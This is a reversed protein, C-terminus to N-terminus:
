EVWTQTYTAMISNLKESDSKEKFDDKTELDRRIQSNERDIEVRIKKITQAMKLIFELDKHKKSVDFDEKWKDLGGGFALRIPLKKAQEYASIVVGEATKIDKLDYHQVIDYRSKKPDACYELLGDVNLGIQKAKEMIIQIQCNVMDCDIYKESAFSHRSPRHFLSLSLSKQAQIRGWGHCPLYYNTAVYQMDNEDRKVNKIYNRYHTQEDTHNTNKTKGLKIGMRNNLFGYVKNFSPFERCYFGIFISEKPKELYLPNSNMSANM